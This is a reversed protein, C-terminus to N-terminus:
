HRAPSDGALEEVLTKLSQLFDGLLLRSWDIKAETFIDEFNGDNYSDLYIFKEIRSNALMKACRRCPSHTCYITAGELSVQHLEAQIITNEEAHVARCTETREGSPIGKEDRLCGLELCDKFLAPAGNYGTTLLHKGRVAVAGIHHRCCTARSAVVLAIAMFYEDIPLRSV